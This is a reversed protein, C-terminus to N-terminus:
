PTPFPVYMPHDVIRECIDVCSVILYEAENVSLKRLGQDMEVTQTKEISEMRALLERSVRPTYPMLKAILAQWNEDCNNSQNPDLCSYFYWGLKETTRVILKAAFEYEEQDFYVSATEFDSRIEAPILALVGDSLLGTLDSLTKEM